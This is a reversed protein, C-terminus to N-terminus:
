CVHSGRHEDIPQLDGMGETLVQHLVFDGPHPVDERSSLFIDLDLISGSISGIVRGFPLTLPLIRPWLKGEWLLILISSRSGDIFLGWSVRSLGISLFSVKSREFDGHVIDKIGDFFLVPHPEQPWEWRVRLPKSGSFVASEMISHSMM